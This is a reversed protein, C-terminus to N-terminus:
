RAPRPASVPKIGAPPKPASSPRRISIPKNNRPAPAVREVREALPPSQIVPKPLTPIKIVPPRLEPRPIVVPRPAQVPVPAPEPPRQPRPAQVIPRQAPRPPIVITPASPAPIKEPPPPTFSEVVRPPEPMKIVPDVPKSTPPPPLVPAPSPATASTPPPTFSDRVTDRIENITDLIPTPRETPQNTVPLAPSEQQQNQRRESLEQLAGQLRDAIQINSNQAIPQSANRREERIERARDGVAEVIRELTPKIDIGTYHQFEDAITNTAMDRIPTYGGDPDPISQELAGLISTVEHTITRMGTLPDITGSMMDGAARSITNFSEFGRQGLEKWEEPLARVMTEMFTVSGAPLSLDREIQDDIAVASAMLGRRVDPRVVEDPHRTHPFFANVAEITAQTNHVRMNLTTELARIFVRDTSYVKHTHGESDQYVAVPNENRMDPIGHFGANTMLADFILTSTIQNGGNAYVDGEYYVFTVNVGPPLERNTPVGAIDIIPNVGKVLPNNFISGGGNHYPGGVSIVEVNQPWVGGNDAYIKWIAEQTVGTGESFSGLVIREQGNAVAQKYQNFMYASGQGTSVNMPTVGVFPGIEAPYLTPQVDSFQGFYGRTGFEQMTYGGGGDGAGGAIFVSTKAAWEYAHEASATVERPNKQESNDLANYGIAFLSAAVVTAAVAKPAGEVTKQQLWLSSRTLAKKTKTSVSDSSKSEHKKRKKKNKKTTKALYKNYDDWRNAGIRYAKQATNVLDEKIRASRGRVHTLSEAVGVVTAYEQITGQNSLWEDLDLADHEEGRLFQEIPGLFSAISDDSFDDQIGGGINISTVLFDNMEKEHQVITEISENTEPKGARAEGRVM